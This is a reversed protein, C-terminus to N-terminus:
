EDDNFSGDNGSDADVVDDDNVNDNRLGNEPTPEGALVGPVTYASNPTEDKVSGRYGKDNEEDIRQQVEDTNVDAM